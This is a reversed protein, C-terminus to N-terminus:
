AASEEATTHRESTTWETEGLLGALTAADTPCEAAEIDAGPALELLREAVTTAADRTTNPLLVCTTSGISGALDISRLCTRAALAVGGRADDAAHSVRLMTFKQGYRQARAIEEDVRLRFYWDALLGTERDFTPRRRDGSIRQMVVPKVDAIAADARAVEIAAASRWTLTVIAAAIVIDLPFSLMFTHLMSTVALAVVGGVFAPALATAINKTRDEM